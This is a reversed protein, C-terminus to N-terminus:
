IDKAYHHHIENAFTCNFSLIVFCFLLKIKEITLPFYAM